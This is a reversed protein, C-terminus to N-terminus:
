RGGAAADYEAKKALRAALSQRSMVDRYELAEVTASIATLEDAVDEGAIADSVMRTIRDTLQSM